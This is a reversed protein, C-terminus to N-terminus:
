SSNNLVDRVQNHEM